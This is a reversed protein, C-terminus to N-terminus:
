DVIYIKDKRFELYIEDKGENRSCNVSTFGPRTTMSGSTGAWSALRELIYGRLMLPYSLFHILM